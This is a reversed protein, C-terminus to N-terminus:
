SPSLLLAGGTQADREAALARARRYLAIDHAIWPHLVDRAIHMDRHVRKLPGKNDHPLPAPANVGLATMVQGLFADGDECFGFGAFQNLGRLAAGTTANTVAGEMPKGKGWFLMRVQLNDFATFLGADHTHDLFHKLSARNEFDTQAILGAVHALKETQAGHGSLTKGNNFRDIWNIHSVLRAWPDRLVTILGYASTGRHKRWTNVPIHGSVGDVRLTADRGDLLRPLVYEAHEHFNDAGYAASLASNWSSGSTKPIHVFFLPLKGGAPAFLDQKPHGKPSQITQTAVSALRKFM